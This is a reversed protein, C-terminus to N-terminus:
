RGKEACIHSCWLRAFVVSGISIGNPIQALIPRLFLTNSPTWIAGHSPAIKLPFSTGPCALSVAALQAFHSFRDIHQKPQPSPYTCPLTYQTLHVSAGAISYCQVTQTCRQHPKKTLNSQGSTVETVLKRWQSNDSLRAASTVLCQSTINSKDHVAV